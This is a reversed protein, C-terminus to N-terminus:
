DLLLLSFVGLVMLLKCFLSLKAFHKKTDATKLFYIFLLVLGVMVGSAVSLKFNSITVSVYILGVLIISIIFYLFNKTPRLGWIIPLTMCGHTADGRLDELDKIIERVLTFLLAFGSYVLIVTNDLRFYIAVIFLSLSTILAVVLNGVFPLRKLYNSYWWLFFASFITVLGVIISLYFGLAIGIFNLIIHTIMIVRRKLLKGVVVRKPKNILDIKVDYYDNILYGAAAILTTSLALLIGNTIVSAIPFVRYITTYILLFQTFCILLLNPMRAIKLFGGFSFNAPLQPM